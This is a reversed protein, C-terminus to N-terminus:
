STSKKSARSKRRTSSSKYGDTDDIKEKLDSAWNIYKKLAKVMNAEWEEEEIPIGLRKGLDRGRKWAEVEEIVTFVKRAVTGEDYERKQKFNFTSGNDFILAHGCEHLLRIVQIKPPNSSNIEILKSIHCISDDGGKEIEVHYGRGNAWHVLTDIHNTWDM